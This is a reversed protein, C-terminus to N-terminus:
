NIFTAKVRKSRILYPIWILCPIATKIIELAVNFEVGQIRLIAIVALQVVAGVSYLIIMLKPFLAKKTYMMVLAFITFGLMLLGWVLSFLDMPSGFTDVLMSLISLYLGIQILIMWGGLGQYYSYEQSEVPKNENFVYPVEKGM